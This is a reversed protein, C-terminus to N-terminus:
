ALLCLWGLTGISGAPDVVTVSSSRRQFAALRSAKVPRDGENVAFQPADSVAGHPALPRAVGQLDGTSNRWKALPAHLVGGFREPNVGIGHNM